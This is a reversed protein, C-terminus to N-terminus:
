FIFCPPSSSNSLFLNNTIRVNMAIVRDESNSTLSLCTPIAISWQTFAVHMTVAMMAHLGRTNYSGGNCSPWTHQLQWWQMFAVHTTVAVM